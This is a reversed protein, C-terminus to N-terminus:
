DGGVVQLDPQFRAILTHSQNQLLDGWVRIARGWLFDKDLLKAPPIRMTAADVGDSLSLDLGEGGSEDRFVSWEARVSEGSPPAESELLGTAIEAASHLRPRRRIEEPILIEMRSQDGRPALM